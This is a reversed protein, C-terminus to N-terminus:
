PAQEEKPQRLVENITPQELSGSIDYRIFSIKSWLPTLVKSAAFVAAGVIPNIVFAAAVGVTASLEPAIVAQMAVQRKVLDIQGRMAIDALLGDVLLNNTHLIGNKVRIDGRISDFYFGRGFTDRFDLQLKRLLADFSILRLLRGARGAGISDIEGKGLAFNISGHLTDIQPQWPRGSWYLNFGIDYPAEQIPIIVGFFDASQEINTGELTGQFASREGQRGQQWSGRVRLRGYGTDLLGQELLLSDGRHQIEASVQGLNQGLLWCSQCRFNISPWSQFSLAESETAPQTAPFQPNYYLYAFEAQWPGQDPITLWGDLEQGKANLRKGSPQQKIVLKLDNWVQGALTLRKTNLVMNTPFHFMGVNGGGQVGESRNATPQATSPLLQLWHDLDVAPLNLMLTKMEPLAAPSDTAMEWAARQLTIRQPALQWQSAFQHREAARGHLMFGQLGGTVTAHLPLRVGPKKNLPAPLQSSIKELEADLTINYNAAAQYPLRIAVQSRWSAEGALARRLPQPLEAINGLHWDGNLALNVRYEHQNAATDFRLTLPQGFWTATLNSSSLTANHFRFKGSVQKLESNLPNILVSNNNLTVEGSANAGGGKLPIDLHLNGQVAGSVQVQELAAAVSNRLPTQQFYTKIDNGQGAINADIILQQKLYNPIAARINSGTVNGLMTQAAVMWLGANRFDLDIALDHLAPWTRQFQFTAQRLPVYVQFQGQNNAYPFQRPNGAHILAANEVVGARIASGLYSALPKGMISKPFYRWAEAGDYLHIGALIDLWPEGASPHLYHFDGRVWLSKAQVDLARGSLQWGQPGYQWSVVGHAQSIELPAAFHNGYPLTSDQLELTLRGDEISGALAGSFHDAGPLLKWHQWSLDQWWAQFRTQRPQQLPIDLALARLKGKPQLDQWRDLLNPSLFSLTPLLASLRELQIGYARLRLEDRLSADKLPTLWLASLSGAPWPQGDTKLNLEPLDLQWGDPQRSLTLALNDVELQHQRSNVLWSAIGQSLLADGGHIEGGSLHLWIALNFNANQLGTNSKLWRSFWPKMDVDNAKLYITGSNLLGEEDRLDLRLELAGHHNYFTSLSVQGEARHRNARNLWTLQPIHLVAHQGSPTFFSVGSNRLDFHDFHFLFLEGIKGASFNPVGGGALPETIDLQLQYFTLDRFQWRWDLLSQWVDLALTLRAIQLHGNPLTARLNRMELTPGFTQWSGQIFDADVPVSLVKELQMLLQPRYRDLEPLLLRLGSILLAVIVTLTACATLLLRPLQRM